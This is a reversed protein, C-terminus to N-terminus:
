SDEVESVNLLLATWKEKETERFGSLNWLRLRRICQALSAELNAFSRGKARFRDEM